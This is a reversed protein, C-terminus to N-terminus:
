AFIEQQNILRKKFEDEVCLKALLKLSQLIIREEKSCLSKWIILIVQNRVMHNLIKNYNVNYFRQDCLSTTFWLVIEIM